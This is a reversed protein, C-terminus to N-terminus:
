PTNLTSMFSPFGPTKPLMQLQDKFPTDLLSSLNTTLLDADIKFPTPQNNTNFVTMFDSTPQSMSVSDSQIETQQVQKRQSEQQLIVDRMSILNQAVEVVDTTTEIPKASESDAPKQIEDMPRSKPEQVPRTETQKETTSCSAIPETKKTEEAAQTTPLNKKSKLKKLAKNKPSPMLKIQLKGIPTKKKASKPIIDQKMPTVKKASKLNAELMQAELNTETSNLTDPDLSSNMSIDVSKTSEELLVKATAAAAAAAAAATAPKTKAIPKKKANRTRKKRGTSIEIEQKKSNQERLNQEFLEPNNRAMQIKNWEALADEESVPAKVEEKKNNQDSENSDGDESCIKKKTKAVRKLRKEHEEANVEKHASITRVVSKRNTKRVKPTEGDVSVVTDENTPIFPESASSEALKETAKKEYQIVSDIKPPASSPISSTISRNQPTENCFRSINSENQGEPITSFRFRNPTNFDLVRVHPNKNRPTSLSRSSTPVRILQKPTVIKQSENLSFVKEKLQDFVNNQKEEVVKVEELPPQIVQMQQSGESNVESENIVIVRSRDDENNSLPEVMQNSPQNVDMSSIVFQNSNFNELGVVKVNSQDSSITFQTPDSATLTAPQYQTDAFTTSQTLYINGQADQVLLYQPQQMQQQSTTTVAGESDSDVSIPEDTITQVTTVQPLMEVKEDSIIQAKGNKKRKTETSINLASNPKRQSRLEYRGIRNSDDPVPTDLQRNNDFENEDIEQKSISSSSHLSEVDYAGYIDDIIDHLTANPQLIENVISDMKDHLQDTSINSEGMVNNINQVLRDQFEPRAMISDLITQGPIAVKSASLQLYKSSTPDQAGSSKLPTVKPRDSKSDDLCIIESENQSSIILSPDFIKRRKSAPHTYGPLDQVNTAHPLVDGSSDSDYESQYIDVNSRKRKLQSQGPENSNFVRCAYQIKDKLSRMRLLETPIEDHRKLENEFFKDM